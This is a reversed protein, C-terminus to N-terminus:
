YNNSNEDDDDMYDNDSYYITAAASAAPCTLSCFLKLVTFSLINFPSKM